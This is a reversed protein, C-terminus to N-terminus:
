RLLPIASSMATFPSLFDKPRLSTSWPISRLTRAPSNTPRMPGFPAPFDVSM